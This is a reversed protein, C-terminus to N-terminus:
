QGRFDLREDDPSHSGAAEAARALHHACCQTQQLGVFTLPLCTALFGTLTALGASGTTHRISLVHLDDGDSGRRAAYLREPQEELVHRGVAALAEDDDQM